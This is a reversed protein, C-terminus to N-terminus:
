SVFCCCCCRGGSGPLLSFPCGAMRALVSAPCCCSFAGNLVGCAIVRTCTGWWDAGPFKQKRKRGEATRARSLVSSVCVRGLEVWDKSSVRETSGETSGETSRETSGEGEVRARNGRDTESSCKDCQLGHAVNFIGSSRWSQFERVLWVLDREFLPRFRLARSPTLNGSAAVQAQRGRPLVAAAQQTLERKERQLGRRLQPSAAPPPRM